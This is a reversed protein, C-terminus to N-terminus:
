AHCAAIEILGAAHSLGTDLSGPASCETVPRIRHLHEGDILFPSHTTFALQNSDSLEEFFEILEQQATPHLHLGPEGAGAQSPRFCKPKAPAVEIEIPPM